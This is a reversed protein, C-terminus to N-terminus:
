AYAVWVSWTVAEISNWKGAHSLIEKWATFVMLFFMLEFYFRRVYINIPRVGQFNKYDPKFINNM